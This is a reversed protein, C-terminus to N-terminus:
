QAATPSNRMATFPHVDSQASHIGVPKMSFLSFRLWRIFTNPFVPLFFFPATEWVSPKKQYLLSRRRLSTAVSSPHQTWDEASPRQEKSTRGVPATRTQGWGRAVRGAGFSTSNPSSKWFAPRFTPTSHLPADCPPRLGCVVRPPRDGVQRPRDWPHGSSHGSESHPRTWRLSM